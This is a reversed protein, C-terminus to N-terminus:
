PIDQRQVATIRAPARGPELSGTNILRALIEPKSVEEAKFPMSRGTADGIADGVLRGWERAAVLGMKATDVVSM